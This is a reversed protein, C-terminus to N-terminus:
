TFVCWVVYRDNLSSWRNKACSAMKGLM